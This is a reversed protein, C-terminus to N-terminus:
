RIVQGDPGIGALEVLENRHARVLALFGGGAEVPVLHQDCSTSARVAVVRGSTFARVSCWGMPRISSRRITINRFPAPAGAETAAGACGERPRTVAGLIAPVSWHCGIREVVVIMEHTPNQVLVAAAGNREATAVVAAGRMLDRVAEIVVAEPTAAVAAETVM